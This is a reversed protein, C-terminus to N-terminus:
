CCSGRSTKRWPDCRTSEESRAYGKQSPGVTGTTYWAFQLKGMRHPRCRRDRGPISGPRHVSVDADPLRWFSWGYVGVKTSRRHQLEDTMFKVGDVLDEVQPKGVQEFNSKEFLGGYGSQGRPDIVVTVYGHKHTMYGQFFYGDGRYSGDTVSKRTGLPGGYVYILLPYKKKANKKWGDPKFMMGHITHGHRNEYDFFEPTWKTLKEAEEPHSDTMTKVKGKENQRILETLSGYAVFNALLKKGDDSVAVSSYTGDKKSLRTMEGSELDVAYAMTRAPSDKTATVFLTKHDESYRLPYVEYYGSTLQRVSEYLPDLM